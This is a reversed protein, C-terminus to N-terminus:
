CIPPAAVLPSTRLIRHHGLEDSLPRGEDDATTDVAQRTGGRQAVMASAFETADVTSERLSSRQPRLAASTPMMEVCLVSLPADAPLGLALLLREIEDQRWATAGRAPADQNQFAGPLTATALFTERASPRLRRQLRLRRDDLLINRWDAGDAQRVQAYLLVWLQTRPPDATINKGNLVAKAYPAEVILEDRTRQVTCFLTPAPHQVGTSRLPRGFRGHATSWIDAHGVRLEYTFLGFLEPSDVTLGPPLPVLYHTPSDDSAELRTMAALGAHDDAMGPSIVRVLEPDIPLPSEEPPVFTEFRHDSLLPDPAYGLMRIFIEDNPDLPAESLELWLFRRRAGTESYTDNRSYPSLALGASVIRPVQAPATTVPLEVELELAPDADDPPSAFRPEIRYDLGIVDPFANPDAPKPEVADLFVLRTHTRDAQDIALQSATTVVEWQGIPNGANDDVDGGGKFRKTRFVDFGIPQLGDWTWDRDLQLTLAVIWQNVLDDKAALTLSSNDPAMTHRIGRAAGFVIREGRRGVLTLGKADVDVEAALRAVISPSADAGRQFFLSGITGDNSPPPDPQLWLARIMSAPTAAAFMATEDVSERRVQIQLPKGVNAGEAFYTADEDALAIITLRILRATPLPLDNRADIEAQTVGLDGLDGPVGFRLVAADDFTLPIELASDMAPDFERETRYLEAYPERKNSSLLNDMRLAQVEVVIQVRTVDPDPIGFSGKGVAEDSAAQLLPVPDAYKGTFMVAPYGLVPRRLELVDDTFLSGSPQEPFTPLNALSVREPVVHRVFEVKTTTSPGANIPEDSPLPGGGTPDTLRVRLQYTHGYRLPVEDLGVGDYMRGLSATTGVAEETHFLDAAIEDPLVVSQGNWQALYAPLWLNRAPQVGDFSQPHVEVGLEGTFPEDPPDGIAIGDLALPARSRVEVLSHWAPDGLERADLRYAFAGLPADLRQAVGGIAPVTADAAVQRSQWILIQEDDWGARIGIDTLPSFGDPEEALLNQSVPQVAHVVKAFGDDYESAEIFVQDYNGLLPPPGPVAPDDILVPFQVAAFLQRATGAELAPIRAAYRSLLTPEAAQQPAYDSGHALDVYVFGGDAFRGDVEFSGERILGLRRALQPHRLCYAYIQGWSVGDPTTVFAPNPPAANAIACSYSDDTTAGPHRPGTFLFSDRYSSPLHKRLSIGDAASEALRPPTAALTFRGAVPAVLAEFLGRADTAVGSADPLAVTADVPTDVPFRGLGDLVRAELALDADAFAVATDGAAPVNELFPQLPSGDWAPGLKPVILVRLHLHTGDFRQPFTLISCRPDLM